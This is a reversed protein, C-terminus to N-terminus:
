GRIMSMGRRNAEAQIEPQLIRALQALSGTFNIKIIPALNGLNGGISSIANQIAGGTLPTIQAKNGLMTLLEPGREGVLATGASLIGGTAMGPMGDVHFQTGGFSSAVQAGAGFLQRLMNMLSQIWSRITNFINRFFNAIAQGISHFLTTVFEGLAHIAAKIQDINKVVLVTLAVVAATIAAIVIVIPNAALFTFLGGVATAITSISSIIMPVAALVHGISGIIQSIILLLPGLAAVLGTIIMILRAQEPTLSQMFKVVRQVFNALKEIIPALVQAITAGLQMLGAQLQAKAKDLQDNSVNLQQLMEESLILGLDEAEEGYARLAAGGDDIIGALQDASKGFLQMAVQDRLTENEIKSLAEIADYFVDSANRMPGNAWETVNVGLARWLEPQGTMNKKMKALAGTMTDLSVDIRDSAYQFKQIEDTSLGTQASMTNLDDATSIAKLGIGVMAAELGAAAGSIKSMKQGASEIKGGLQEMSKGVAAVQQAGVSGFNKSENELRKLNNETQIIERQLAQYQQSNKDVGRADMEKQIKNLTEVKNKTQEIQKALLQQKQRLLETNKPDLKLLRDVDKLQKQTSKVSNDVDKLSKVLKSTDGSLEIAIGRIKDSAM